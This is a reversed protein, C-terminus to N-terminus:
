QERTSTLRPCSAQQSAGVTVVDVEGSACHDGRNGRHGVEWRVIVRELGALAVAM